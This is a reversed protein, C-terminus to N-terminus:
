TTREEQIGLRPAVKKDKSFRSHNRIHDEDKDSFGSEHLESLETGHRKRGM